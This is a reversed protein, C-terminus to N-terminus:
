CCVLVFPWRGSNAAVGQFKAERVTASVNAVRDWEDHERRLEDQLLLFRGAVCASECDAGQWLLLVHWVRRVDMDDGAATVLATAPAAFAGVGAGAGGGAGAGVGVAAASASPTPHNDDYLQAAALAADAKAAEVDAQAAALAAAEDESDEEDEEEEEEDGEEMIANAMTARLDTRQEEFRREHDAVEAARAAEADAKLKAQVAKLANAKGLAVEGASGAASASSSSTAAAAAAKKAAAASGAADGPAAQKMAEILRQEEEAQKRALEERRRRIEAISPAVTAPGAEFDSHTPQCRTTAHPPPRLHYQAEIGM